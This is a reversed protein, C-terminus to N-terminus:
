TPHIANFDRRCRDFATGMIVLYIYMLIRSGVLVVGMYVYESSGVTLVRGGIECILSCLAFGAYKKWVKWLATLLSPDNVLDHDPVIKRLIKYQDGLVALTCLSGCVISLVNGASRSLVGYRTMLAQVLGGAATLLIAFEAARHKAFLPKGLYSDLERIGGLMFLAGVIRTVYNLEMGINMSLACLVFGITFFNM